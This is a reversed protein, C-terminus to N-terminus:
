GFLLAGVLAVSFVIYLIDIKKLLAGLTAFVVITRVIDWPVAMAFKATVYVLLGVFSAFIGKVASRFSISRSFRDFIDAGAVVFLFSPTFIGITAAIAGPWGYMLYGVFTATIVIPGPTVQGLAIGDMFVKSDMWGLVNVIEQLMLPVSAFGGGFAFLDVKMMVLVLRFLDKRVFYLCASGALVAAILAIIYPVPVPMASGKRSGPGVQADQRKLLLGTLAAGLIVYFPSIGLWFLAASVMAILTDAYDNVAQKGFAYAANAILAVVLVQLGGFVARIGPLNGVADYLYSLTIMLIFSPLCFGLFSCLAGRVGRAQLGVYAAAQMATAGPIIQCLAVGATFTEEGIWKKQKVSLDGIYAVMAPGGFAGVGLRLFSFFLESLRPGGNIPTQRM